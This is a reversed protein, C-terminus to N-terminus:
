RAFLSAGKQTCEDVLDCHQDGFIGREPDDLIIAMLQSLDRRNWSM